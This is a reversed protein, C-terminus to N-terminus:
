VIDEDVLDLLVSRLEEVNTPVKTELSEYLFQKLSKM